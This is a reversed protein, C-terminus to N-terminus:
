SSSEQVKVNIPLWQQMRIFRGMYICTHTIYTQTIPHSNKKTVQSYRYNILVGFHFMYTDYVCVCVCVYMMYMYTYM